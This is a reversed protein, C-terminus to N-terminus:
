DDDQAAVIGNSIMFTHLRKASAPTMIKYQIANSLDTAVKPDYLAESLFKRANNASMQRLSRGFIDALAYRASTRGSKVAFVRSSIQNLGTGMAFEVSGFPNTDMGQGQPRVVLGNKEIARALRLASKLKEDGLAVRIAGRSKELFDLPKNSNLATEWVKRAIAARAEPERVGSVLRMMRRPNNIAQTIVSDPTANGSEIRAIERALISKEAQTKRSLLTAKRAEIAKIASETSNVKKNIEPFDSLVGGNKRKWADILSPNLAGDRVAFSHLDDLSVDEMANRANATRPFVKNFQDASTQSWGDFFEKAIKEDPVVYAGNADTKLVRSSAGQEFPVVFDDRYMQRFKTVQDALTDDGTARVIQDTAEDLERKMAQLYPVRKEGTPTRRAERIDAGIRSRLEMLDVISANDDMKEIDSLLRSPLADKDALKSRPAAAHKLRDKVKQFAFRPAPDNLGMEGAAIRMEDKMDIRANILDERISAGLERRRQSGKIRASVQSAADDLKAMKDEVKSAVNSVRRSGVAFADDVGMASKPAQAGIARKIAEDNSSYRRAAADLHPGSLGGEFERQTTILSPNETAEAVSPKYGPVNRQIDLTDDIAKRGEDTINQRLGDVMQRRQANAIEEPSFRRKAAGVAKRAINAPTVALSMPALVGGATAALYEAMPGSGEAMSAGVGSGVSSLAEGAAAAGPAAAIGRATQNVVQGGLSTANATATAIRPAMAITGIAPLANAGAFEGVRGTIRALDSSPEPMEMAERDLGPAVAELPRKFQYDIGLASTAMNALATPANAMSYLGRNFGEFFQGTASSGFETELGLKAMFEAKPMDSYFKSYLKGALEGDPIDAYQPYKERIDKLKQM